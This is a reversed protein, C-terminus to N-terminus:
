YHCAYNTTCLGCSDQTGPRCTLNSCANTYCICSWRILSGCVTKWTVATGGNVKNMEDLNMDSLNIKDLKLKKM